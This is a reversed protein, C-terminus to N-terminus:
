ILFKVKPQGDELWEQLGWVTSKKNGDATVKVVRDGNKAMTSLVPSLNKVYDDLTKSKDFDLQLLTEAIKKIHLFRREKSLIIVIKDKVNRTQSYGVYQDVLDAHVNMKSSVTLLKKSRGRNSAELFSELYHLSDKSLGEMQILDIVENLLKLRSLAAEREVLLGDLIEDAELM